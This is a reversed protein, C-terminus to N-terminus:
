DASWKKTVLEEVNEYWFDFWARCNEQQEKDVILVNKKQDNCECPLSISCMSRLRVPFLARDKRVENCCMAQNLVEGVWKRESDDWLWKDVDRRCHDWRDNQKGRDYGVVGITEWRHHIWWQFWVFWDDIDFMRHWRSNNNTIRDVINM